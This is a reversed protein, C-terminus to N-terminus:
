VLGWRRRLYWESGAAALFLSLYFYFPIVPIDKVVFRPPPPPQAIRDKLLEIGGDRGHKFRGGTIGALRELLAHEPVTHDAEGALEEIFFAADTVLDEAAAHLRYVGGTLEIPPTYVGAGKEMDVATEDLKIGSRSLLVAAKQLTEPGAVSVSVSEGSKYFLSSPRLELRREDDSRRAIHSILSRVFRAYLEPRSDAALQWRYTPGALMIAVSGKGVQKIALAPEGSASRLPVASDKLGSLTFIHRLPPMRAWLNRNEAPKSSLAAISSMDEGPILPIGGPPIRRELSVEAGLIGNLIDIKERVGPGPLFLLGGGKRVFSELARIEPDHLAPPTRCELVVVDYSRTPEQQKEDFPRRASAPFVARTTVRVGPMGSLTESLFATEPSFGQSLILVSVDVPLVQVVRHTINNELRTEGRLPRLRVELEHYGPSSPTYDIPLNRIDGLGYYTVPGTDLVIGDELLVMRGERTGVAPLSYAVDVSISTKERAPVAEPVHVGAIWTDPSLSPRGMGAAYIPLQMSKLREAARIVAPYDDAAGDSFLVLGVSPLSSRVAVWELAEALDTSGADAAPMSAPDRFQGPEDGFAGLTIQFRDKARNLEPWVADVAALAQGYRPYGGMEDQEAMSLSRDVLIILSPVDRVKRIVQIEPRLVALTIAALWCFRLAILAARRGGPLWRYARRYSFVTFVLVATFVSVVAWWPYIGAFHLGDNM